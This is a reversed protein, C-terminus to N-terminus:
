ILDEMEIVQVVLKTNEKLHQDKEMQCRKAELETEYQWHDRHVM